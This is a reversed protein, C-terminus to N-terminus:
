KVVELSSLIEEMEKDADKFGTNKATTIIGGIGKEPVKFFVNGFEMDVGQYTGSFVLVYADYGLFKNEGRHTLKFNDMGKQINEITKDAVLELNLDGSLEKAQIDIALANDESGKAYEIKLKDSTNETIEWGQPVLLSFYQNTADAYGKPVTRKYNSQPEEEKEPEESEENESQEKKDGEKKDGEDKSEDASGGCSITFLGIALAMMFLSIKKM